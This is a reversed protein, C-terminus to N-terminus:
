IKSQHQMSKYQLILQNRLGLMSALTPLSSLEKQGLVSFQQNDGTLSKLSLNIVRNALETDELDTKSDYRCWNEAM